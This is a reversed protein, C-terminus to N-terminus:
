HDHLHQAVAALLDYARDWPAQHHIVAVQEVGADGYAALQEAVQVPSGALTLQVARDRPFGYAGRLVAIVAEAAAGAGGSDTTVAAHAVLALRPHPRGAEDALERLGAAGRALEAVTVLGALWGDGFRVTRRLAAPSGGGIWVTPMPVAPLLRVVSATPGVPTARGALLDPLAALFADTRLGRESRLLGAALYEEEPGAGVGVGLQLRGPGALHALTAVQRAAWALPRLSPLFVATGITIRETAAAAAALTMAADLLPVDGLVLHDGAWLSDLGAREAVRSSGAVDLLPDAPAAADLLM